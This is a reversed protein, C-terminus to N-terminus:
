SIRKKSIAMIIVYVSGIGFTSILVVEPNISLLLVLAMILMLLSILINTIPLISANIVMATKGTIAEIIDSSNRKLHIEYPQYLTRRYLNLSFDAGISHSLRTQFWLLLMRM